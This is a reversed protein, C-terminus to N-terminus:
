VCWSGGSEVLQGAGGFVLTQEEEGYMDKWWVRTAWEVLKKPNLCCHCPNRVVMECGLVQDQELDEQEHEQAELPCGIRLSMTLDFIQFM